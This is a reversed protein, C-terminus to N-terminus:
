GPTTAELAAIRSAIPPHTDFLRHTWGEHHQLPDDVCMPAVAHNFREFPRDNRALKGLARTLAAADHTLLVADEDARLERSRSLVLKTLPGVVVAVISLISAALMAPVIAPGAGEGRTQATVTAKWVVSVCLASFGVLTSVVLLLRIDLSAIHGMEHAVIAELEDGDMTTLLGTTVAISARARASGTAFANPAPDEIVFVDPKALGAARAVREVVEHLAADHTLDAPHAGSVALVLRPGRAVAWLVLGIAVAGAIAAGIVEPAETRGSSSGILAGVATWFLVFGAVVLGSRFSNRASPGTM